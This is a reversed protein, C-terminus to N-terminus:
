MAQAQTSRLGVATVFVQSEPPAIKMISEFDFYKRSRVRKKDFAFRACKTRGKNFAPSVTGKARRASVLLATAMPVHGEDM